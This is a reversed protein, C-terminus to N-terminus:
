RGRSYNLNNYNGPRRHAPFQEQGNGRYVPRPSYGTTPPRYAGTGRQGPHYPRNSGFQFYNPRAPFRTNSVPAPRYRPYQTGAAEERHRPADTRTDRRVEREILDLRPLLSFLEEMSTPAPYGAFRARTHPNLGSIIIDLIDTDPPLLIAAAQKVHVIFDSLPEYPRQVRYATESVLRQKVREPLFVGILHPMLGEISSGETLAKTWIVRLHGETKPLIAVLLQRSDVLQLENVQHLGVLFKYFRERDAGSCVPLSDILESIARPFTTQNGQGRIPPQKALAEAIQTGIASATAQVIHTWDTTPAATVQETNKNQSELVNAKLNSMAGDLARRLIVRNEELTPGPLLQWKSCQAIAEEASLDRIWSVGSPIDEWAYPFKASQPM